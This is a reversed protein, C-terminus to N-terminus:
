RVGRPLPPLTARIAENIAHMRRAIALKPVGEIGEAMSLARDLLSAADRPRRTALAADALDLQQSVARLNAELKTV